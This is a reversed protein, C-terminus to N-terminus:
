TPNNADSATVYKAYKLLDFISLLKRLDVYM